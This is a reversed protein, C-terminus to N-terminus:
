MGHFIGPIRYKKSTYGVGNASRYPPLTPAPLCPVKFHCAFAVDESFAALHSGNTCAM